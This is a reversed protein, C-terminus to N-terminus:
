DAARTLKSAEIETASYGPISIWVRSGSSYKTVKCVGSFGPITVLDGLRVVTGDPYRKGSAGHYPADDRREGDADYSPV